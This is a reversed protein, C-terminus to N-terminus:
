ELEKRLQKFENIMMDLVEQKRKGSRKKTRKLRGILYTVSEFTAPVLKLDKRESRQLFPQAPKIDAETPAHDVKGRIM